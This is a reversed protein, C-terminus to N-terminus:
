CKLKLFNNNTLKSFIVNKPSSFDLKLSALSTQVRLKGKAPSEIFKTEAIPPQNERMSLNKISLAPSSQLSSKTTEHDPTFHLSVPKSSRGEFQFIEQSKDLKFMQFSGSSSRM